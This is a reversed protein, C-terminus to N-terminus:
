AAGGTLPMEGLLREASRRALDRPEPVGLALPLLRGVMPDATNLADMVRAVHEVMARPAGGLARLVQWGRRVHEEEDRAIEQLAEAPRALGLATLRRAMLRFQLAFMREGVNLWVANWVPDDTTCLNRYAAAYVPNETEEPALEAALEAQTRAHRREDEATRRMLEAEAQFGRAALRAAQGAAAQAAYGDLRGGYRLYLAVATRANVV